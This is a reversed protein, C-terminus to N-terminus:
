VLFLRNSLELFHGPYAYRSEGSGVAGVDQVELVPTSWSESRITRASNGRM